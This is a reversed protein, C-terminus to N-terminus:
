HTLLIFYFVSFTAKAALYISFCTMLDIKNHASDFLKKACIRLEITEIQRNQNQMAEGQLIFLPM